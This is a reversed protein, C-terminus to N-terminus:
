TTAARLTSYRRLVADSLWNSSRDIIARMIGYVGASRGHTTTSSTTRVFCRDIVKMCFVQGDHRDSSCNTVDQRRQRKELCCRCCSIREWCWWLLRGTASATARTVGFRYHESRWQDRGHVDVACFYYIRFTKAWLKSLRWGIKMIKPLHVSSPIQLFFAHLKDM